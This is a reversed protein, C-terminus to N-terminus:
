IFFALTVPIVWKIAFMAIVDAMGKGTSAQYERAAKKLEAVTM